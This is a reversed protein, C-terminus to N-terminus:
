PHLCSLEVGGFLPMAVEDVEHLLRDPHMAFALYEEGIRGRDAKKAGLPDLVQDAL